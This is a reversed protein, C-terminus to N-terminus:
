KDRGQQFEYLRGELLVTFILLQQTDIYMDLILEFNIFLSAIHFLNRKHKRLLCACTWFECYLNM